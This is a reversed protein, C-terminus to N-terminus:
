GQGPPRRITTSCALAPIEGQMPCDALRVGAKAHGAVIYAQLAAEPIAM